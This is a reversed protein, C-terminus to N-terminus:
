LIKKFQAFMNRTHKEMEAIEEPATGTMVWGLYDDRKGDEVLVNVYVMIAAGSVRENTVVDKGTFELRIAWYEPGALPFKMRDFVVCEKVECSNYVRDFTDVYMLNVGFEEKLLNQFTKRGPDAFEERARELLIDERGKGGCGTSLLLFCVMTGRFFSNKVM